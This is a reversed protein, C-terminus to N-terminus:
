AGSPPQRPYTQHSLVSQCDSEGDRHEPGQSESPGRGGLGMYVEPIKETSIKKTTMNVRIFKM